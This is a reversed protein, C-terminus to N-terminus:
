RKSGPSNYILKFYNPKTKPQKSVIESNFAILENRRDFVQEAIPILHGMIIRTDYNVDEFGSSRIVDLLSEKQFELEEAFSLITYPKRVYEIRLKMLIADDESIRNKSKPVVYKSKQKKLRPIPKPNSSKKKVQKEKKPKTIQPKPDLSQKLKEISKNGCYLGEKFDKKIQNLLKQTQLYLDKKGSLQSLIKSEFSKFQPEYIRNQLLFASIKKDIEEVSM